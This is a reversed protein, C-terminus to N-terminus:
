ISQKSYSRELGPLGGAKRASPSALAMRDQRIRQSVLLRFSYAMCRCIKVNEVVDEWLVRNWVMGSGGTGCWGLFLTGQEVGDWLRRNWVMSFGWTGCWRLAGQEVYM